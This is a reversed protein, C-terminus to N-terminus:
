EERGVRPLASCRQRLAHWRASRTSKPWGYRQSELQNICVLAETSLQLSRAGARELAFGDKFIARTAGVCSGRAHIAGGSGCASWIQNSNLAM